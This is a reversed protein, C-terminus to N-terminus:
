AGSTACATASQKAPPVSILEPITYLDCIAFPTADPTIESSDACFASCLAYPKRM